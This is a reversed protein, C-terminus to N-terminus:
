SVRPAALTGEGSPLPPPAGLWEEQWRIAVWVRRRLAFIRQAGQWERRALARQYRETLERYYARLRGLEDRERTYM